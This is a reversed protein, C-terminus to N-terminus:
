EQEKAADSMRRAQIVTTLYPPIIPARDKPIPRDHSPIKAVGRNKKNSPDIPHNPAPSLGDRLYANKIQGM